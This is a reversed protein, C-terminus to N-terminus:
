EGVQGPISKNRPMKKTDKTEKPYGIRIDVMGMGCRIIDAHSANNSKKKGQCIGDQSTLRRMTRRTITAIKHLM